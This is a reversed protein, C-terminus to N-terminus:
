AAAATRAPVRVRFAAGGQDSLYAIEGGLRGMIERSIALGLGAGGVKAGDTLRSFKEFILAQNEVPIGSGNDTFDIIVDGEVVGARIRLVPEEADCYKQANSILNIFVQTLRDADTDIMIQEDRKRRHFRLAPKAVKAGSALIAKDVMDSLNTQTLNLEVQANELVSLDLLDNLLRTLRLAEDHIITVFQARQDAGLSEDRLIESFSRISAMP